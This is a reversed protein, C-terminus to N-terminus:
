FPQNNATEPKAKLFSPKAPEAQQIPQEPQAPPAKAPEPEAKNTTSSVVEAEVDETVEDAVFVDSMTEVNMPNNGPMWCKEQCAHSMIKTRLFGPHPQGTKEFRWNSGEKSDSKARWGEIDSLKYSIHRQTGNADLTFKVYGGIIKDSKYCEEHDIIGNKKSFIDGEYILTAESNYTIQKTKYLRLLHAGAQKSVCLKGSRPILYIHGDAPDASYGYAAITTMVAYVSFASCNKFHDTSNLIQQLFVLNRQYMFEGNSGGNCVNYNQIYKEKVLELEPIENARKSNIIEMTKQATIPINQQM